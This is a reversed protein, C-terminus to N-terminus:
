GGGFVDVVGLGTFVSECCSEVGLGPFELVRVMRSLIKTRLTLKHPSRLLIKIHILHSLPFKNSLTAPSQFSIPSLHHPIHTLFLPLLKNLLTLLLFIILFPFPIPIIINNYPLM